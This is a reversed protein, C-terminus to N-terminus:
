AGERASIIQDEQVVSSCRCNVVERAPGSPDGPFMLSAGGVNFADNINQIQGDASLHTARVRSDGQSVWKKTATQSSGTLVQMETEKSVEAPMQTETISIAKSRVRFNRAVQAGVKRGLVVNDVVGEAAALQANVSIQINRATTAAIRSAQEAARAVFVEELSAQIAAREAGTEAVSAPLRTALKRSFVKAVEDYHTKLTAEIAAAGSPVLAAGLPGNQAIATATQKAIGIFVRNLKPRLRREFRMKLRTDFEALQADTAM